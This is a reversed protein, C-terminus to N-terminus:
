INEKLERIKALSREAVFAYRAQKGGKIKRDPPAIIGFNINMPQFNRGSGSSVYYGLAGIATENTFDTITKNAIREYMSVGALFGSATSEIYGEVGTIQGAFAINSNSRM